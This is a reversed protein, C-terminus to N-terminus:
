QPDPLFIQASVPSMGSIAPNAGVSRLMSASLDNRRRHRCFFIVNIRWQIWGWLGVLEGITGVKDTVQNGSGCDDFVVVEDVQFICAARAIQGALCARLEPSQANDLISGPVAISLTSILGVESVQKVQLEAQATAAAKERDLEAFEKQVRKVHRAHKQQRKREKRDQRQKATLKLM